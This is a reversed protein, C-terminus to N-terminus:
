EMTLLGFQKVMVEILLGACWLLYLKCSCTPSPSIPPIATNINYKIAEESIVTPFIECKFNYFTQRFLVNNKFPSPSFSIFDKVLKESSFKSEM